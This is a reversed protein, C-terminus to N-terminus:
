RWRINYKPQIKKILGKEAGIYNKKYKFYFQVYGYVKKLKRIVEHTNYRKQLNKSSGVYLIEYYNFPNVLLYVGPRNVPYEFNTDYTNPTNWDLPYFLFGRGCDFSYGDAIVPNCKPLSQKPSNKFNTM